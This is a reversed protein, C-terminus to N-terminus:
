GATSATITLTDSLASNPTTLTSPVELKVDLWIKNNTTLYGFQACYKIATHNVTLWTNLPNGGHCSGDTLANTVNWTYSSVITTVGFWDSNNKTGNITLSANVNGSNIIMIGSVGTTSWNGGAVSSSNRVTTLNASVAGANISGNSWNIGWTPSIDVALNTNVTLNVYGTVFGTFSKKLESIKIFTIGFNLLAVLVLVIALIAFISNINNNKNNKM